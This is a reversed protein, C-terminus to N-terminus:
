YDEEEEFPYGEMPEQTENGTSFIKKAKVNNLHNKAQDLRQKGYTIIFPKYEMDPAYIEARVQEEVNEMERLFGLTDGDDETMASSISKDIQSIRDKARAVESAVNAMQQTHILQIGSHLDKEKEDLFQRLAAFTATMELKAKEAAEDAKHRQEEASAVFAELKGRKAQLSCLQKELHTKVRPKADEFAEYIHRAHEAGACMYCILQMDDICFLLYEENHLPCQNVNQDMKRKKRRKLAALGVSPDVPSSAKCLVCQIGTKVAKARRHHYPNNPIGGQAMVKNACPMCYVHPVQCAPLVIYEQPSSHCVVCAVDEDSTEQPKMLDELKPPKVPVFSPPAHGYPLYTVKDKHPQSDSLLGLANAISDDIHSTASPTQLLTDLSLEKFPVTPTTHVSTDTADTDIVDVAMDSSKSVIKLHLAELRKKSTLYQYKGRKEGFPDHMDQGDKDLNDDCIRLYSEYNQLFIDEMGEQFLTGCTPHELMGCVAVRITEHLIVQNYMKSDGSSRENEYGPENHYPAANMLSQISLLTSLLTQAQSWGPGSWTGLISLCVKGNSYLNPNFRTRGSDTTQIQVQPPKWPYDHPFIMDFHFFGNAYPTDSPGVILAQIHM